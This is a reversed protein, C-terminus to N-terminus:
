CAISQYGNEFGEEKMRYDFYGWSAYGKVANVFHNTTVEFDFHDDEYFLIPQSHYGSINKMSDFNM